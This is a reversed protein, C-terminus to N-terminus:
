DERIIEGKITLTLVRQNVANSYVRINKQFTGSRNHTNFSAKLQM